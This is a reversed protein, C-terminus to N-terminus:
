FHYQCSCAQSQTQEADVLYIKLHFVCIYQTAHFDELNQLGAWATISLDPERIPEECSRYEFLFARHWSFQAPIDRGPMVAPSPLRGLLYMSHYEYHGIQLHQFPRM